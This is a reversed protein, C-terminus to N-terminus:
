PTRPARADLWAVVDSLVQAKEPEHLLDHVLGEYLKLTKDKSKAAAILERSGDPDTVEDATGHLALVPTTLEGRGETIEKLARLLGAATRAPAADQFVLSDTKNEQVVEPSRSFKDPDLSFADLHPFLASVVKTSGALFGSVNKGRKLAGASLVLGAIPPKRTLTDLTVIAGGMSHGFLYVPKDAEEKAVMRLFLNLDDLYQEFPDVWVRIGESHGHGRLDFAHVAFGKAALAAGLETYRTSHDRLGHVVVVVARVKGDEPRWSQRFLHLGDATDFQGEAHAVRAGGALQLVSPGGPPDLSKRPGVCASCCLLAFLCLARSPIM